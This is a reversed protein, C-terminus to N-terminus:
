ANQANIGASDADVFAIISIMLPKPQNSPTSATSSVFITAAISVAAEPQNIYIIFVIVFILLRVRVTMRAIIM